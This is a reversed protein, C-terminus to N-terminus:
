KDGELKFGDAVLGLMKEVEEASYPRREVENIRKAEKDVALIGAEIDEYIKVKLAENAAKNVEDNIQRMVNWKEADSMAEFQKLEEETAFTNVLAAKKLKGAFAQKMDYYTDPISYQGSLGYLVDKEDKNAIYEVTQSPM